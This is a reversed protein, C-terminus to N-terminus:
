FAGPYNQIDGSSIAQYGTYLPDLFVTIGPNATSEYDYKIETSRLLNQNNKNRVLYLMGSQM